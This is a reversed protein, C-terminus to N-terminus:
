ENRNEGDGSFIINLPDLSEAYDRAWVLWEAELSEPIIAGKTAILRKEYADLYDHLDRSERWKAVNSELAERKRKEEERRRIFEQRRREEEAKERKEEVLSELHAIVAALAENLRNELPENKRDGWKQYHSWKVNLKLNLKGDVKYELPIDLLYPPKKKEEATLERPTQRVHEYLSIRVEEGEKIVRTQEGWSDEAVITEYGRAQAAKLLADMILLARKSQAHSVFIDLYGKGEPPSFPEFRDEGERLARREFFRKTKEVLPHTDTLDEAITIQNEPLSERDIKAQVEGSVKDSGDSVTFYIFRRTENTAAPLPTPAIKAGTEIRRWYGLPPKPINMKRCIKALGVDSMGLAAAVKITPQAWVKAYLEERSLKIQKAM